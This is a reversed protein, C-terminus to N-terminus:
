KLVNKFVEMNLESLDIHVADTKKIYQGAKQEFNGFKDYFKDGRQIVCYPRQQSLNSSFPKAPMVRINLQPITPHSYILGGGEKSISVLFNDPIGLPRPLEVGGMQKILARAKTESMITRTYPRLGNNVEKFKRLAAKQIPDKVIRAIAQDVKYLKNTDQLHILKEVSYDLHIATQMLDKQKMLLDIKPNGKGLASIHELVFTQEAVKFGREITILKKAFKGGARAFNGIKSPLIFDSGLEGFAEGILYCRDSESITEWNKIIYAVQPALAEFLERSEGQAALQALLQFGELMQVSTAIPHQVLSSALHIFNGGSKYIGSTVGKSFMWASQMYNLEDAPSTQSKYTDFSHIAEDYCGLELLANGRGIHLFPNEPYLQISQDYGTLVNQYLGKKEAAEIKLQNFNNSEFHGTEMPNQMYFRKNNEGLPYIDQRIVITPQLLEIAEQQIYRNLAEAEVCLSSDNGNKFLQEQFCFKKADEIVTTMEPLLRESEYPTHSPPSSTTVKSILSEGGPYIPVSEVPPDKQEEQDRGAVASAAIAGAGSASCYGAAVVCVGAVAVVVVAGIIIQKKHKCCYNKVKGWVHGIGGCRILRPTDYYDAPMFIFPEQFFVEHADEIIELREEETAGHIALSALWRMVKDCDLPSLRNDWVGEEIEQLFGIRADLNMEGLDPLCWPAVPTFEFKEMSCITSM